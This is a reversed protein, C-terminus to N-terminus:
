MRYNELVLLLKRRRRQLYGKEVQLRNQRVRNELSKTDQCCKASREGYGNYNLKEDLRRIEGIVTDGILFDPDRALWFQKYGSLREVLAEGKRSEYWFWGARLFMGACLLDLLWFLLVLGRFGNGLLVNSYESKLFITLSVVSVAFFVFVTLYLNSRRQFM